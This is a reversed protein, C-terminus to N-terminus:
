AICGRNLNMHMQVSDLDGMVDIHQYDSGASAGAILANRNVFLRTRYWIWRLAAGDGHIRLRIASARRQAAARGHM